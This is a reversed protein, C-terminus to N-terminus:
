NKIARGQAHVLSGGGAILPGVALRLGVSRMFVKLFVDSAPWRRLSCGYFCGVRSFMGTALGAHPSEGCTFDVVHDHETGGAPIDVDVYPAEAAVADQPVVAADEAVLARAFLSGLLVSLM